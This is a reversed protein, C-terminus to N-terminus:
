QPGDVFFAGEPREKSQQQQLFAINQKLGDPQVVALGFDSSYGVETNYVKILKDYSEQSKEADSISIYGQTVIYMCNVDSSYNPIKEIEQALDLLDRQNPNALLSKAKPIQQHCVSQKELTKKQQLVFLGIILFTCFVVVSLILIIKRSLFGFKVQKKNNTIIKGM